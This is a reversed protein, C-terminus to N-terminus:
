KTQLIKIQKENVFEFGPGGMRELTRLIECLDDGKRFRGYFTNQELDQPEFDFEVGYWRELVRLLRDIQEGKFIYTGSRWASVEEPNVSRTTLLQESKDWQSQMGSTLVATQGEANVLSVEVTGQEVTTTLMPEDAYAQINFSTGLVRVEMKGCRVVFRREPDPTVDFFAEGELEVVRCEGEFVSPFHINSSANLWVRTGDELNVVVGETSTMITTQKSIDEEQLPQVYYHLTGEDQILMGQESILTDRAAFVFPQKVGDRIITVSAYAQKESERSVDPNDTSIRNDAWWILTTVLVLMCAAAAWGYYLLQRSRRRVVMRDLLKRSLRAYDTLQEVRQKDHLYSRIAKGSIMREYFLRNGESAVVWDHLERLEESSAKATQERVILKVIKEQIPHEM